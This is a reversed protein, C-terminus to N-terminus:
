GLRSYFEKVHRQGQHSDLQRVRSPHRIQVGGQALKLLGIARALVGHFITVVCLPPDGAHPM